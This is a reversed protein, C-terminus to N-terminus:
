CLWLRRSGTVDRGPYGRGQTPDFNLISEEHCGWEGAYLASENLAQYLLHLIPWGPSIAM